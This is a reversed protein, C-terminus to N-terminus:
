FGAIFSLPMILDNLNWQWNDFYKNWGESGLEYLESSIMYCSMIFEVWNLGIIAPNRRGDEIALSSPSPICSEEEGSCVVLVNNMYFMNIFHIIIFLVHIIMDNRLTYQVETEWAYKIFFQM